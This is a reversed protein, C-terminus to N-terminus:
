PRPPGKEFVKRVIDEASQETGVAVKEVMRKAERPSFEL